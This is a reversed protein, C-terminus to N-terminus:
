ESDSKNKGKTKNKLKTIESKLNTIEKMMEQVASWLVVNMKIYNLRLYEDDTDKMVMKSWHKPMKSNPIDQAIFGIEREEKGKFNFEKPKIYKVIDYCTKSSIEKINEKLREDSTETASGNVHLGTSSIECINSGNIALFILGDSDPNDTKVRESTTVTSHTIGLHGLLNINDNTIKIEPTTAELGVTLNISGTMDGNRVFLKYQGDLVEKFESANQFMFRGWSIVDAEGVINGISNFTLNNTVARNITIGNTDNLQLAISSTTPDAEKNSQLSFNIEKSTIINLSKNADARQYMKMETNLYYAGTPAWIYNSARIIEFQSSGGVNLNFSPNKTTAIAVQASTNGIQVDGGSNWQLYLTTNADDSARKCDIFWARFLMYAVDNGVRFVQSADNTNKYFNIGNANNINATAGGLNLDGVVELDTAVRAENFNSLGGVNLFYSSNYQVGIGVQANTQSGIRLRYDGGTDHIVMETGNAPNSPNMCRFNRNRFEWVAQSDRIRLTYNADGINRIIDSGTDPVTIDGVILNAIKVNDSPNLDLTTLADDSTANAIIKNGQLTIYNTANKFTGVIKDGGGFQNSFILGNTPEINFTENKFTIGNHIITPLSCEIIPNTSFKDTFDSVPVRLALLNDIETDTYGGGGGAGAILGDVETKNYYNTGLQSNTQYNTALNTNIASIANFNDLNKTNLTSISATNSAINTTNTDLLSIHSTLTNNFGVDKSNLTAISNDFDTQSVGGGATALETKTAYIISLDTGGVIINDAKVVNTNNLTLPM